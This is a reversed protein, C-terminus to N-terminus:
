ADPAMWTFMWRGTRRVLRAGSQTLTEASDGTWERSPSALLVTGGRVCWTELHAALEDEGDLTSRLRSLTGRGHYAKRLRRAGYGGSAMRVAPMTDGQALARAADLAAPRDAFAALVSNVPLPWPWDVAERRLAGVMGAGPRETTRELIRTNALPVRINNTAM